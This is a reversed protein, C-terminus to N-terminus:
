KDFNKLYREYMYNEPLMYNKVREFNDTIASLKSNYLDQTLDSIKIDDLFLIGDANFHNVINRTGKYVPITGTAFCDLIKETFYTNFTDNEICISFMYDNLGEEKDVIEKFGRGYIDFNEINNIAFNYRFRQQETGIKNSTIMSLLKNKKHVQPNKIWSGMAFIWKFKNSYELLEDNYTFIMEYTELLEAMNNKIFDFTGNNFWRSEITWLIKIKGDNKNEMGIRADSDLYVSINNENSFFDWKFKDLERNGTSCTGMSFERSKMNLKLM